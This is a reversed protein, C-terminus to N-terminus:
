DEQGEDEGGIWILKGDDTEAIRPENATIHVLVNDMGGWTIGLIKGIEYKGASGRERIIGIAREALAITAESYPHTHSHVRSDGGSKRERGFRRTGSYM